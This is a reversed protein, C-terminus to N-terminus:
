QEEITFQISQDKENSLSTVIHNTAYYVNGVEADPFKVRFTATTATHSSSVVTGDTSTQWDADYIAWTSTTITETPQLFEKGKVQWNITYDLIDAVDQKKKAIGV